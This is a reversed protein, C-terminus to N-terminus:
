SPNPSFRPASKVVLKAHIFRAMDLVTCRDLIGLHAMRDQLAPLIASAADIALDQEEYVTLPADTTTTAM